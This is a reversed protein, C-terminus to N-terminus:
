MEKLYIKIIRGDIVLVGLHKSRETKHGFNQLCNDRGGM